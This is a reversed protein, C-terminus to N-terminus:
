FHVKLIPHASLQLSIKQPRWTKYIRTNLTTILLTLTTKDSLYERQEIMVYDYQQIKCQFEFKNKRILEVYNAAYQLNVISDMFVFSSITLIINVLKLLKAGDVDSLHVVASRESCHSFDNQFFGWFVRSNM